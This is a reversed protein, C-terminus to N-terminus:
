KKIFINKRKDHISIKEEATRQQQNLWQEYQQLFLWYKEEGIYDLVNKFPIGFRNEESSSDIKLQFKREIDVKNTTLPMNEVIFDLHLQNLKDSYYTPDQILHYIGLHFEGTSTEVYLCPEKTHMTFIKTLWKTDRSALPEIFKNKTIEIQPLAFFKSFRYPDIKSLFNIVDSWQTQPKQAEEYFLKAVDDNSHKIFAAAYYELLSKHLFTSTDIGEELMLCAGKIIDTQFHEQECKCNETYDQANKFAQTFQENSLSRGYGNQLTMFCFAEFLEQLKRDSLGSNRKRNFGDKLRDHRTLVIHFLKEFFEPLTNPIERESEYVIAVLTLMLPTTILETLSGKSEKIADVVEFSKVATLGMKELFPGYDDERLPCINMVKIGSIKQIENGPRSSIVIQMSEFKRSLFKIENLTEKTLTSDLEDFADLLLLFKGSKALYNFTEENITIDFSELERYIADRLSYKTHLTRLEIFIPLRSKKAEQIALWRLFISKGQGVIGQIVFNETSIDNVCNANLENSAGISQVKPPYYFGLLSVDDDPCWLTRVLSINGIKKALRKPFQQEEWRSLATKVKGKAASYIDSIIPSSVKAIATITAASVLAM